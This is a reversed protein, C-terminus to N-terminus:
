NAKRALDQAQQKQAKGLVSALAGELHLKSRSEGFGAAVFWAEVQSVTLKRAAGGLDANGGSIRDWARAGQCYIRSKGALNWHRFLV